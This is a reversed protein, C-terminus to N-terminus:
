VRSDLQFVQGSVASMEAHLFGIFKAADATTNFRSLAHQGLAQESVKAPVGKTFKTEM